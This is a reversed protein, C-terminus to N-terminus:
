SFLVIKLSCQDDQIDEHLINLGYIKAAGASAVAGVDKFMNKAVFKAAGATDDVAERLLGFRSLTHEGQTLAWFFLQSLLFVPDPRTSSRCCPDAITIEAKHEFL